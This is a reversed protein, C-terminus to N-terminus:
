PYAPIAVGVCLRGPLGSVMDLVIRYHPVTAFLPYLNEVQSEPLSRVTHSEFILQAPDRGQQEEIFYATCM